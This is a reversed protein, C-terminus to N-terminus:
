EFCFFKRHGNFNRPVPFSFFNGEFEPELNQLRLSQRRKIEDKSYYGIYKFANSVIGEESPEMLDELSKTHDVALDLIVEISEEKYFGFISFLTSLIKRLIGPNFRALRKKFREMPNEEQHNFFGSASTDDEEVLDQFITPIIRRLKRQRKGWTM